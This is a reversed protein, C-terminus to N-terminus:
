FIVYNKMSKKTYLPIEKACWAVRFPINENEINTTISKGHPLFPFSLNEYQPQCFAKNKLCIISSFISILIINIKKPNWWLILLFISGCIAAFLAYLSEGKNIEKEKKSYDTSYSFAQKFDDQTAITTNKGSNTPAIFVWRQKNEIRYLGNTLFKAPVFDLTKLDLIELFKEQSNIEAGELDENLKSIDSLEIKTYSLNSRKVSQAVKFWFHTWTRSRGLEGNPTATATRLYFFPLSTSKWALQTGDAANYFPKFVGKYVRTDGAMRIGLEAGPPPQMLYLPLPFSGEDLQVPVKKLENERNIELTPNLGATYVLTDYNTDFGEPIWFTLDDNMTSNVRDNIPVVWVTANRYKWM